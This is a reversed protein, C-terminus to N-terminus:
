STSKMYTLYAPHFYVAKVYEKEWKSGTQKGHGTRVTAEQSVKSLLIIGLGMQTAAFSMIENKKLSSHYEMTLSGQYSLPLSDAMDTRPVQTRYKPQSSERSFSTAVWEQIRMQSIGYVSLDTTQLEHPGLLTPCLKIVVCCYEMTYFTGNRKIWEDTSPCKPQKRFTHTIIFLQLSCKQAHIKKFQPKRWIYEWSQFQQIM